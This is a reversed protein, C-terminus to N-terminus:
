EQKLDQYKTSLFTQDMFGLLLFPKSVLFFILVTKLCSVPFFDFYNESMFQCMKVGQMYSHM